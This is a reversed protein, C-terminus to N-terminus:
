NQCDHFQPPISFSNRNRMGQVGRSFVYKKIWSIYTSLKKKVFEISERVDQVSPHNFPLSRQLIDLDREFYAIAKPYDETNRYVWGINNYSTALSPHNPPLTKRSIELDKEYFSLAKTYEGKNQYVGGINNYSIALSPHNPSLTQKSNYPYFM